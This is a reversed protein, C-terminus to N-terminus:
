KGTVKFGAKDLERLVGNVDCTQGGGSDIAECILEFGIAHSFHTVYKNYIEQDIFYYGVEIKTM